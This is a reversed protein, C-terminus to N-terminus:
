RATAAEDVKRERLESPGQCCECDKLIAMSIACKECWYDVEYKGDPKIHYVRITQVYPSGQYRRVLLEVDMKRLREDVLFAKGRTDPVLPVLEGSTTELSASSEALSVEPKIGFRRKLAEATFVVKGRLSLTTYAPKDTKDGVAAKGAAPKDAPSTAAWCAVCAAAVVVVGVVARRLM